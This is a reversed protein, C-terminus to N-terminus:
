RESVGPRAINFTHPDVVQVVGAKRTRLATGTPCWTRTRQYNSGAEILVRRSTTAGIRALGEERRVHGQLTSRSWTAPQDTRRDPAQQALAGIQARQARAYTPRRGRGAASELAAVGRQKCRRLLTAVGTHSRWGAAAAAQTYARGAAVALVARARAVRDVRASRAQVTRTLARVEERRLPRL